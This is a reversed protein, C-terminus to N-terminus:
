DNSSSYDLKSNNITNLKYSSNYINEVYSFRGDVIRHKNWKLVFPIYLSVCAYAHKHNDFSPPLFWGFLLSKPGNRKYDM